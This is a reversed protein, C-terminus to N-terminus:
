GEPVPLDSNFIDMIIKWGGDAQRRWIEIYKGEDPVPEEGETMAVAMFYTGYVYAMDGAGDVEVQTAEFTTIPPFTALWEAMASRGRIVGENPPLVIADPAYYVEAYRIWDQSTNAIELAQETVAAIEARDADTFGPETEAACALAAASVAFILLIRFAHRVM